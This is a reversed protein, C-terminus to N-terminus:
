KEEATSFSTFGRTTREQPHISSSFGVADPQMVLDPVKETRTSYQPHLVSPHLEPVFKCGCVIIILRISAVVNRKERILFNCTYILYNPNEGLFWSHSDEFWSFVGMSVLTFLFVCIPGCTISVMGDHFSSRFLVQKLPWKM